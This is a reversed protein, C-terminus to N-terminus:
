IHLFLEWSEDASGLVHHAFLLEGLAQFPAPRQPHLQTDVGGGAVDGESPGDRQAFQAIELILSVRRNEDHAVERSPDPVRGALGLRSWLERLLLHLRVRLLAHLLQQVDQRLVVELNAVVRFPEFRHIEAVDQAESRV